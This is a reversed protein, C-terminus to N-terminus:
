LLKIIENYITKNNAVVLPIQNIANYAGAEKAVMLGPLIDHDKPPNSLNIYAECGGQALWCLASNEDALSRLRYVYKGIEKLKNFSWDYKDQNRKFSPIYCYVFAETLKTIKSVEIQKGNKFSGLSLASSYLVNEFPRFIASCITKRNQQLAISVNWQPIDRVFEKTGDLPDIIWKFEADPNTEGQEESVIGHNPYKTLITDVLYKESAFDATTAIDQIDKQNIVQFNDKHKLIIKGAKLALNELFIKLEEINNSRM